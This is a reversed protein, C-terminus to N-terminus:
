DNELKFEDIDEAFEGDDDYWCVINRKEGVVPEKNFIEELLKKVVLLNM